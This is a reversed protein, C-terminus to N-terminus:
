ATHSWTRRRAPREPESIAGAILGVRAPAATEALAGDNTHGAQAWLEVMGDDQEADVRNHKVTQGVSLVM